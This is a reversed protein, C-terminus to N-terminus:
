DNEKRWRVEVFHQGAFSLRAGVFSMDHILLFVFRCERVTKIDRHIVNYSHMHQLGLAMQGIWDDRLTPNISKAVHLTLPNVHSTVDGEDCYEM